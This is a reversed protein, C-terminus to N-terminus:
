PKDPIVKKVDQARSRPLILVSDRTAVVILDSVGIASVQMGESRILNNEGDLLTVDGSVVNGNHDKESIRWLEAWSGIDAWGIDCPAVAARRTKEMVAVDVPEARVAFFTDPDLHIEVGTRRARQLSQRAGERIDSAAISFEELLLGPSFFFIGANWTYGGERLYREADALNPKERFAEVEHVGDAISAGGLIYGYGTEPGTPSIGFTVIRDSVIPIAARIADILGAPRAVLHDAPALVVLAEPDLEQAVLAALAATAATNRGEPELVLASLKINSASLLDLVIDRHGQGAIVIPALFEIDDHVGTFRLATDEIMSRGAGFVHFQKPQATTSLPWLRTGSGGSMIVPFIKTRAL